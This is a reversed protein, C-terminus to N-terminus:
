SEYGRAARGDASSALMLLALEGECRPHSAQIHVCVRAPIGTRGCRAAFGATRGLCQGRVSQYGLKWVVIEDLSAEREDRAAQKATPRELIKITRPNLFEYTLGTGELLRSLGETATLGAPVPQSLKGLALQSVYVLHLNTSEAFAALARELPQAPIEASLGAAGHPSAGLAPLGTLLWGLTLAWWGTAFRM